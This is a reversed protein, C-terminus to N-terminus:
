INQIFFMEGGEGMQYIIILDMSYIGPSSTDEPQSECDEGKLFLRTHQSKCAYFQKGTYNFWMLFKGQWHSQVNQNNQRHSEINM